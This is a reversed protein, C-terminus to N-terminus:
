SDGLVRRILELNKEVVGQQQLVVERALNGMKASQDPNDLLLGMQECLQDPNAVQLAAKREILLRVIEHFNEMHPGFLIPKAFAAPELVNHGGIPVLSGGVFVLTAVAYLRQLEGLTDLLIVTDSPISAFSCSEIKTKRVPELGQQKVTDEIKELRDLHRPALLLRAHPHRQSLRRYCSAIAEEEGEHTSGAMILSCSDPLKLSKRLENLDTSIPVIAQDYKMNGTKVVKHPAVGLDILRERDLDTQVSFLSVAKLVRQFFPALLKYGNYSRKSVRGNVMMAPVGNRNLAFLFNPWIETELFVFISPQVKRIVRDVLWPLDFPFYFVQDAETLKQRATAQGTQTVTSILLKGEPYSQRLRKVLPTVAMVEGVSVAHIWFIPKQDKTEPPGHPLVFQQDESAGRAGASTRAFGSVRKQEWLERPLFGLRPLISERYKRRILLQVGLFGFALPLVSLIV